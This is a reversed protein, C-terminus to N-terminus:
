RPDIIVLRHGTKPEIIALVADQVSKPMSVAEGGKFCVVLSDGMLLQGALASARANAAKHVILGEDDIWLDLQLGAPQAALSAANRGSRAVDGWQAAIADNLARYDSEIEIVQPRESTHVPVFICTIKAM